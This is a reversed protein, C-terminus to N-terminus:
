RPHPGRGPLAPIGPPAPEPVAPTREAAITVKKKTADLPKDTRLSLSQMDEDHYHKLGGHSHGHDHHHDHGHHHDHAHPDHSM